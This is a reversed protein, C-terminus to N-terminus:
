FYGAATFWRVLNELLEINEKTALSASSVRFQKLVEVKNLDHFDEEELAEPAYTEIFSICRALLYGADGLPADAVHRFSRNIVPMDRYKKAKRIAQAFTHIGHASSYLPDVSSLHQYCHAFLYRIMSFLFRRYFRNEDYSRAFKVLQQVAHQIKGLNGKNEQPNNYNNNNSESGM